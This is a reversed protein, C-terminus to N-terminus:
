EENIDTKLIKEQLEARKEKLIALLDKAKNSENIQSSAISPLVDRHNSKRM